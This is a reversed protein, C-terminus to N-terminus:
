PQVASFAIRMYFGYLIIMALSIIVLRTVDKRDIV